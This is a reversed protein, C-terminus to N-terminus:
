AARQSAAETCLQRYLALHRQAIARWTFGQVFDRGARGMAASHDRHALLARIAAALHEPSEPPVLRGTAGERVLSALGPHNAAIVPKGTAYSELVVLGFAESMRSPVITGLASQLLYAKTQGYAPGTFCVREALGLERALEELADREVGGGAVVLRVNSPGPAVLAFTRLLIDVGKRRALRGIFLLYCGPQIRADLGAPRVAPATLEALNVGNPIEVIQQERAGLRLFGDRTFGSIAILQDASRVALEHRRHLVPKRLRVGQAYVDGGHSTLLLPLDLQPKLLAAM